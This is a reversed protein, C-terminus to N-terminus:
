SISFLNFNLLGSVIIRKMIQAEKVIESKLHNM